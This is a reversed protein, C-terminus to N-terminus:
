GQDKLRHGSHPKVFIDAFGAYARAALGVGKDVFPAHRNIAGDGFEARLYFFAVIDTDVPAFHAGGFLVDINGEVLRDADFARCRAHGVINDIKDIIGLTDKRDPPEVFTRFAQDQESVVAIDDVLDQAAFVLMLFLIYDADLLRHRIFKQVAHAAAHRNQVARGFGAFYAAHALEDEVDNKRFAHVALDAAHAFIEAIVHRAQLTHADDVELEAVELGTM